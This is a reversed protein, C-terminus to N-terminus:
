LKYNHTTAKEKIEKNDLKLSSTFEHWHEKIWNHQDPSLCVMAADIFPQQTFRKVVKQMDELVTM